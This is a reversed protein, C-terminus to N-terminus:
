VPTRERYSYLVIQGSSQNAFMIAAGLLLRKRNGPSRLLHRLDTPEEGDLEIQAKISAHEADAIAHGDSGPDHHLKRLASLSEEERNRLQLWRPSEILWFSSVALAIAPLAQMGLVLRWQLQSSQIFYCGLTVWASGALGSVFRGANLRQVLTVRGFVRM